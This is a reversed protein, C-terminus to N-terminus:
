HISSATGGVYPKHESLVANKKNKFTLCSCHSINSGLLKTNRARENDTAKCAVAWTEGKFITSVKSQARGEQSQDTGLLLQSGFFRNVSWQTIGGYHKQVSFM